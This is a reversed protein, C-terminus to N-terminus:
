LIGEAVRKITVGVGKEKGSGTELEQWGCM